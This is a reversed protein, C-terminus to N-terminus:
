GETGADKKPGQAIEKGKELFNLYNDEMQAPDPIVAALLATNAVMQGTLNDAPPIPALEPSVISPGSVVAAMAALSSPSGMETEEAAKMAALHHEDDPTYVWDEAAKQALVTPMDTEESLSARACMCAWWVAERKPLAHALFQIADPYHGGDMLALLYQTSSIEEQLLAQAAEELELKFYSCVEQASRVEIKILKENEM